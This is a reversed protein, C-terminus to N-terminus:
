PRMHSPKVNNIVTPKGLYGHSVPYPPRIRPIGRKGELSELLSSEEGCIYAGAGMHIEIDFDFGEGSGTDGLINRGLLGRDRRRQLIAALDDRLYRYEGRLYLLGRDAGIVGGCLTMGEFVRDAYSHLLIRDKFTGPEGEDANCVVYRQDAKSDRCFRWKSGTSFGAGGCGRLGSATIQELITDAGHELLTHLAAGDSEDDEESNDLLIDRRHINDSVQFFEGPWKEVPTDAEILGAITDIRRNDLRTIALGNVLMAPGQDCMGTCSTTTVTVRGDERPVALTVALRDCLQETLERSGLMHDTISDSVMIDYHGRPQEHLFTYFGIVGHIHAPTLSLIEALRDIADPPIYSYKYQIDYLYQLLYVPQKGAAATIGAIFEDTDM